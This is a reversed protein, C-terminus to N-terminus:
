GGSNPNMNIHASSIGDVVVWSNDLGCRRGAPATSYSDGSFSNTAGNADGGCFFDINHGGGPFNELTVSYFRCGDGCGSVTTYGTGSLNM